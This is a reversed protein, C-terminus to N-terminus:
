FIEEELLSVGVRHGSEIGGVGRGRSRFIDRNGSFNLERELPTLFIQLLRKLDVLCQSCLHSRQSVIDSVLNSLGLLGDNIQLSFDLSLQSYDLFEFELDLLELIGLLLLTGFSGLSAFFQFDLDIEKLILELDALLLTIFGFVM